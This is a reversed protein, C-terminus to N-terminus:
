GERGETDTVCRTRMAKSQMLESSTCVPWVRSALLDVIAIALGQQGFKAVEPDIEGIM